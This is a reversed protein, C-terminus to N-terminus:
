LSLNGLLILMAINLYLLILTLVGAKEIRLGKGHSFASTLLILSWVQIILLLARLVYAVLIPPVTRSFILYVYPYISLPLIALSICMFLHIEDGSRKYFVRTILSSFFFVGIWNFLFIAVIQDFSRITPTYFLLLPDLKALGAGVAGVILILASLLIWAVSNTIKTFVSTLFLWRFKENQYVSDIKLGTPITGESLAKYLLQGKENLFYKRNKDQVIFDSLVDLHYYLTGVGIELTDRFDKFGVKKQDGLM